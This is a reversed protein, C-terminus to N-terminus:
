FSVTYDTSYDKPLVGGIDRLYNNLGAMSQHRTISMLKHKAELQTLGQGLFSNYLDLAFTHRFSYLGYENGLDLKTKLRKFRAIFFDAKSKERVTVYEDPKLSPTFLFHNKDKFDINMGDIVARLSDIILVTSNLETKTKIEIIGSELHINKLQIRSVEIPRLFAYMVFQIYTYLYTDNELLYEKIEVLQEKTFPKNKQPKSKIKPITTVFNMKLIDDDVLQKILGSVFIRYNNRTTASVNTGNKNTLQNLFSAIHRKSLDTIAVKNLNSLAIWRIFTGFYGKNVNKTSESWHKVKQDMARKLAVEVSLVETLETEENVFPNFGSKLKQKVAIMCCDILFLREKPDKIGNIGKKITFKVLKNTYPSRFKYYVHWDKSTDLIREGNVEKYAIYRHVTKSHDELSISLGVEYGVESKNKFM